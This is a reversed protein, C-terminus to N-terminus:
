AARESAPTPGASVIRYLSTGDAGKSREITCGSQRLGTLAARTTHALWSTAARLESLSAGQERSLLAVILARKTGPRQLAPATGPVPAQAQTRPPAPQAPAEAPPQKSRRRRSRTPRAQPKADQAQTAPEPEIGIAALGAAIIQLRCSPEANEEAGHTQKTGVAVEEILGRRLLQQAARTFVGTAMREPRVLIRNPDQAAASLLVLHTDSLLTSRHTTNSM